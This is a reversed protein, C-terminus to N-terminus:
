CKTFGKSPEITEIFFPVQVNDKAAATVLKKDFTFVVKANKDDTKKGKRFYLRRREIINYILSTSLTTLSLDRNPDLNKTVIKTTDSPKFHNYFSISNEFDFEVRSDWDGEKFLAFKKLHAVGRFGHKYANMEERDKVENAFVKLALRIGELTEDSGLDDVALPKLKYYFIYQLVSCSYGSKYVVSKQIADLESPEGDAFKKIERYNLKSTVITKLLNRDDINGENNPLLGFVLEFLTEVSLLFTLRIDMKISRRFETPNFGM